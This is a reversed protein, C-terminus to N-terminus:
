LSKGYQEMLELVRNIDAETFTKYGALVIRFCDAEQNSIPQYPIMMEGNQHLVLKLRVSVDALEKSLDKTIQPNPSGMDVGSQIMKARLREPVFFFNVNFPCPDCALLFNKKQKIKEVLFGLMDVKQELQKGLGDPGHFKLLAWLKISDTRRGCTYSADGLDYEAGNKRSDFLYKAGSSNAAKM